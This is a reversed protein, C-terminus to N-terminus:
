STGLVRKGRKALDTKLASGLGRLTKKNHAEIGVMPRTRDMWDKKYGESGVGYDIESVGDNTLVHEIMDKTLVSGVSLAKFAEDYALKYIIAKPGSLLWVQAAAPVGDVHLTGLRLIGLAASIRCLNTMFEPYSEEDKWSSAYIKHYDALRAPDAETTIRIDVTHAAELKKRKRKITNRARSPRAAYYDDFSTGATDICYNEYQDYQSAGFGNRELGELLTGTYPEDGRLLRFDLSRWKPTEAAIHAIIEDVLAAQNQTGPSFVPLFEMTYFSTLSVLQREAADKACFLFCTDDGNEGTAVYVRPELTTPFGFEQLCRFWEISCFLNGQADYRLVDGHHDALDALSTHVTVSM